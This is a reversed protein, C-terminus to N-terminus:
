DYGGDANQVSADYRKWATAWGRQVFESLWSSALLRGLLAAPVLAIAVAALRLRAKATPSLM